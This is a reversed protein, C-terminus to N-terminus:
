LNYQFYKGALLPMGSLTESSPPIVEEIHPNISKFKDTKNLNKLNIKNTSGIKLFDSNIKSYNNSSSIVM